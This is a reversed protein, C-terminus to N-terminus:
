SSYSKEEPSAISVVERIVYQPTQNVTLYTRGLYEGLFGISALQVGSLLMISVMISAWGQQIISFSHREIVVYAAFVFSVFSMFFGLITVMRLPLISFNTFMNFWLRVLKRFTYNSVGVERERHDVSVSGINDTSRFILGDIYPYAGAYQLIEKAIFSRIAKFSSFYLERPKKMLHTAMRDNLASGWNRFINHKKVVYNGYVVDYGSKEMTDILKRIESPPHQLDDDMLVFVDGRAFKMGAMIANHQGFNRALDLLTMNSRTRALKKLVSLSNDGSSDNIFVVEFNYGTLEREIEGVLLPLSEASNYVPIVISILGIRRYNSQTESTERM